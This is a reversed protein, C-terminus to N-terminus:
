SASGEKSRWPSLSSTSASETRRHARLKGVVLANRSINLKAAIYLNEGEYVEVAAFDAISCLNTGEYFNLLSRLDSATALNAAVGEDALADCNFGFNEDSMTHSEDIIAIGTGSAGAPLKLRIGIPIALARDDLPTGRNAGAGREQSADGNSFVGDTPAPLTTVM